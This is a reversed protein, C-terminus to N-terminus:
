SKQLIELGSPDRDLLLLASTMAQSVLVDGTEYKHFANVGGGILRGAEKQTLKLRKRIRRVDSPTLRGEVKAKLNTLARDSNKMDSGDHISEDSADCYWGPMPFTSTEGKYTITMLRTDRFMREGTEPCVPYREISDIM